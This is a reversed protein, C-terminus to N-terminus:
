LLAEQFHYIKEIYIMIPSLILPTLAETLYVPFVKFFYFIEHFRCNCNSTCKEIIDLPLINM